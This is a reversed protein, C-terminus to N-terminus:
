HFHLYHIISFRSYLLNKFGIYTRPGTISILHLIHILPLATYIYLLIVLIMFQIVWQMCHKRGSNFHNVDVTGVLLIATVTCWRDLESRHLTKFDLLPLRKVRFITNDLSIFCPVYFSVDHFM